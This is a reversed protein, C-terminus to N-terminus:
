HYYQINLTSWLFAISHIKMCFVLDYSMAGLHWIRRIVLMFYWHEPSPQRRFCPVCLQESQGHPKWPLQKPCSLERWTMSGAHRCGPHQPWGLAKLRTLLLFFSWVFCGASNQLLRVPRYASTNFLPMFFFIFLRVSTDCGNRGTLFSKLNLSPQFLWAIPTKGDSVPCKIILRSSNWFVFHADLGLLTHICYITAGPFATVAM